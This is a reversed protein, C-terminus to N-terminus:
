PMSAGVSRMSPMVTAPWHAVAVEFGVAPQQAARDGGGARERELMELRRGLGPLLRGALDDGRGVERDVPQEVVDQDARPGVVGPQRLLAGVVARAVAAAPEPHDVRDVAGAREGGAPGLERDAHRQQDLAHRQEARDEVRRGALVELGAAVVARLEVARREPDAVLALQLAGPEQRAAALHLAAVPRRQQGLRPKM